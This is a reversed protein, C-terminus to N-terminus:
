KKHKFPLQPDIILALEMTVAFVRILSPWQGLQDSDKQACIGKQQNQQTKAYDTTITAPKLIPEPPRSGKKTLNYDQM